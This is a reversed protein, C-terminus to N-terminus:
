KETKSTAILMEEHESIREKTTHLKNILGDFDNKM